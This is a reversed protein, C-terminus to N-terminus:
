RATFSELRPTLWCLIRETLRSTTMCVVSVHGHPLRWLEPQGWAQWLERMADKPVMLDHIADILLVNEKSIVPQITALNLATRNLAELAGRKEPLTRRIGRWVTQGELWAYLRGGPITLVAAALRRDHCVTLGTLWASYSIGWLAVAPCGQELLWGTLARIEAVAQAATGTLLMYNPWRLAQPPRPRRQFYYPAELTAVNFGDRNCRRAIWPFRHRHNLVDGRGHLLVIVPREQWRGACRYFRGYVVNNETVACPRPTPFRFHLSGEFELRAPQSETPIFDPGNVFDLAEKLQSDGAHERPRLIGVTQIASWDILKALPAIM